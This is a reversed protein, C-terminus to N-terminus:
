AYQVFTHIEGGSYLDLESAIQIAEEIADEADEVNMNGLVDNDQTLSHLIAMAYDGGSGTAYIGRASREWSYDEAISFLKGKIAVILSGEFKAVDDDKKIEGGIEAIAKKLSPIFSKTLYNETSKGSLRPATWSYQLVNLVRVSGSGAILAPGNQFIKPEVMFIFTGSDSDTAKSESGLVCWGDGQIAALTTM